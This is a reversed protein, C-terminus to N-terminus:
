TAGGMQIKVLKAKPTWDAGALKKAACRARDMDRASVTYLKDNANFTFDKM